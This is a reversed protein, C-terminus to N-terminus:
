LGSIYAVLLNVEQDSLPVVPMATNATILRQAAPNTISLRLYAEDAIVTTGDIMDRPKGLLGKWTPGMGKPKGDTSHCVLCGKSRAVAAGQEAQPSLAVPATKTACATLAATTCVVM